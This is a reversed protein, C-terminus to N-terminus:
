DGGKQLRGTEMVDGDLLAVARGRHARALHMYRETTQLSTHGMVEAIERLTAGAAALRSGFTHRLRHCNQRVPLGAKKECSGVWGRLIGRTLSPFVRPSELHRIAQLAESLRRTMEVSRARRTKTTPTRQGRVAEGQHWIRLAGKDFRVDAWLLGVLEGVRLGADCGLLLAAYARPSHASAAELLRRLDDPEYIEIEPQPAPLLEPRPPDQTLHGEAKAFRLIASLVLLHHNVTGAALPQIGRRKTQRVGSMVRRFDAPTFGDVPRDAFLPLLRIRVIAERLRLTNEAKRRAEQAALWLPAVESFLPAPPPAPAPEAAPPHRGRALLNAELSLGWRRSDKETPHPSKKRLRGPPLGDPWCLSIDVEWGRAGRKVYPRVTVPM